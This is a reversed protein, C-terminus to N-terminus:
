TYSYYLGSKRIIHNEKYFCKAIKYCDIFVLRLKKMVVVVVKVVM